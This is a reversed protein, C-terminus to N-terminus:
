KFLLAKLYIDKKEEITPDVILDKFAAILETKNSVSICGGHQGVCNSRCFSFLKSWYSQFELTAPELLNHVGPKWFGGGVLRHRCLKISKPLSYALLTLNFMQSYSQKKQSATKLQEIQVAKINHPAIIFKVNLTNSNIFDVIASRRRGSSGVV